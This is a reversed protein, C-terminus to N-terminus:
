GFATGMARLETPSPVKDGVEADTGPTFVEAVLYPHKKFETKMQKKLDTRATTIRVVGYCSPTDEWNAADARAERGGLM